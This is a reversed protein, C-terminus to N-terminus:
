KNNTIESIKSFQAIFIPFSYLLVCDVGQCTNKKGRRLVEAHSFFFFDNRVEKVRSFRQYLYCQIFSQQEGIVAQDTM